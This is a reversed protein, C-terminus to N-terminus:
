DKIGYMKRTTNGMIKIASERSFIHQMLFSTFKNAKGSVFSPTKGIKQLCEAVVDEPRQVKPALLGLPKPNTNYYNPTGTAGACCGIVDVGKSKWEYWLSEALIRNFAKSAGYTALYGSGQFGALSSMLVVGGRKDKIMNASFAHIMKMPTMMNVTAIEIHRSFPVDMFPGIYSAAANYVLFHIKMNGTAIMIQDIAEGSALDCPVALVNVKYKAYIDQATLELKEKDRAVIVLDLGQAALARAYAAGLGVSAGAVLAVPGYKQKFTMGRM